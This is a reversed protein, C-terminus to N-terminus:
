PERFRGQPDLARRAREIAAEGPRIGLRRRDRRGRVVLGSLGLGQLALDLADLALEAPWAILAQQGAATYVARPAASSTAGLRALADEIAAIRGPQLPAKVLSCAPPCGRWSACRAGTHTPTRPRWCRVRGRAVAARTARERPSASRAISGRRSRGSAARSACGCGVRRSSISRMWRARGACCVGCRPSPTTSHRRLRRHRHGDGGRAPVGQAHGRGRRGAIGPKGGDAQASRVRRREEGGQRRRAGPHRRRRPLARRPHLRSHRRLARPGLGVRGGRHHRRPDRGSRGPHSRVAPVSRARRARGGGGRDTDRRPRDGHVREAHVRRDGRVGGSRACTTKVARRRCRTRPAVAARCRACGGRRPPPWLM